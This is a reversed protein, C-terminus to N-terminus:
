SAKAEGRFYTELNLRLSVGPKDDKKESKLGVTSLTILRPSQELLHIFRKIQEYDGNVSFALTYHLLGSKKEKEHQYSIQTLDLRSKGALELLEEILGTFERHEPIMEHFVNLGHRAQIFKQEPTNAAGSRKRLLQRVETQRQMFFQEREYVKPALVEQMVILFGINVLLLAALVILTWRRTDWLQRALEALYM